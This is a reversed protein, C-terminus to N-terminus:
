ASELQMWLSPHRFEKVPIKISLQRVEEKTLEDLNLSQPCYLQKVIDKYTSIDVQAHKPPMGPSTEEFQHINKLAETNQLFATMWKVRPIGNMNTIFDNGGM